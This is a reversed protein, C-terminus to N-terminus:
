VVDTKSDYPEEPQIPFLHRGEPNWFDSSQLSIAASSRPNLHEVICSVKVHRCVKPWFAFFGTHHILIQAAAIVKM